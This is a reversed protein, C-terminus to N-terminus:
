AVVRKLWPRSSYFDTRTRIEQAIGPWDAASSVGRSADAMAAQSLELRLAHHQAADFIAAVKVPDDDPLECWAPTGVMPRRGIRALVPAVYEHVSSWSV